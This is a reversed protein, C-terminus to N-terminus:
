LDYFSKQLIGSLPWTAAIDVIRAVTGDKEYPNQTSAAKERHEASLALAIAARISEGEQSCHIVSEARLRGQQRTGIDVVPTHLSPVEIIGSSSNGIVCAAFRAASFYRQQGLSSFFRRRRNRAVFQQLLINMAPGEPDENAATFIVSYESFCELAAFLGALQQEAGSADLTVPHMTCLLYPAGPPLGLTTRTEAADLLRTGKINEVGISGVTIVRGPSEGLQIVRRRYAECATLHLHSMKTISHRFPEDIVGETIEGGFLHVIPTRCVTAAAAMAFAEYRDGLLMLLDPRLRELVDAYRILGLGMAACVGAPSGGATLMEACASIAIGDQRMRELNREQHADLHAGSVVVQTTVDPRAQLGLMVNKLLHYEARTGTFVAIKRM